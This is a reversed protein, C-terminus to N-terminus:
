VYARVRTAAGGCYFTSFLRARAAVAALGRTRTHSPRAKIIMHNLAYTHASTHTRTYRAHANWCGATRFRVPAAAAPNGHVLFRSSLVSSARTVNCTYTWRSFARRRIGRRHREVTGSFQKLDLGHVRVDGPANPKREGGGYKREPRSFLARGISRGSAAACCRALTL